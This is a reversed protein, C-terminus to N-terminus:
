QNCVAEQVDPKKLSIKQHLSAIFENFKDVFQGCIVLQIAPHYTSGAALRFKSLKDFIIICFFPSNIISEYCPM